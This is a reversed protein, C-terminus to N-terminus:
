VHAVDCMRPADQQTSATSNLAHQINNLLVNHLEDTAVSPATCKYQHISDVLGVFELHFYLAAAAAIYSSWACARHLYCTRAREIAAWLSLWTAADRTRIVRNDTAQTTTSRLWRSIPWSAEQQKCCIRGRGKANQEIGSCYILWYIRYDSSPEHKQM